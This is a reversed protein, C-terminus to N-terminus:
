PRPPPAHESVHTAIAEALRTADPEDPLVQVDIGRRELATRTTAGIAAIVPCARVAPECGAAAALALLAEVQSPAFLAIVHVSGARLAALGPALAAEEVGLADSRYVTVADVEAGAARLREVAEDRGGAARPILVRMGAAPGSRDDAGDDTGDDPKDGAGDGPARATAAAALVAEAVGVADGRTPVLDARLGRAALARATARGVCAIRCGGLARADLGLEDLEDFFRQVANASALLLWDYGGGQGPRGRLRALARDLEARQEAAPAAIRTLPMLVPEGGLAQVADAFGQAQERARPVLVRKGLLPRREYWGLSSAMDVVRGVVLLAPPKLGAADMTAALEELPAVVTRQRSTTGRYIAAAPTRPDKGAAILERACVGATRVAMFLVVTGARALAEWDISSLPKGAAEHGTAFAVTSTLDRATLPIGAYAPVATAATVGPVIEFDIGAERLARCEEAGRGFVFPDGGKLRVVCRGALAQEVLIANIQEQSLPEGAPARKKGAYILECEPGALDLLSPEVLGDYVVVEARALLAAGRRTLLGPDGPGAGVM